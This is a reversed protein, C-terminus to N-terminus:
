EIQSPPHFFAGPSQGLCPASVFYWIESAAVRSRYRGFAGGRAEGLRHVAYKEAKRTVSKPTAADSIEKFISTELNRVIAGNNEDAERREELIFRRTAEVARVVM